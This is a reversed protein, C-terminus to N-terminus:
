GIRSPVEICECQTACGRDGLTQSGSVYVATRETNGLVSLLLGLVYESPYHAKLYATQYSVLAYAASHSKNFGYEAFKYCLDFIKECCYWTM